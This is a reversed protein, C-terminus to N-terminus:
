VSMVFSLFALMVGALLYMHFANRMELLSYSNKAICLYPSLDLCKIHTNEM